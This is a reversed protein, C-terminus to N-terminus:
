GPPNTTTTVLTRQWIDIVLVARMGVSEYLGLAPTTNNTDVHLVTGDRGAAADRAFAVRLLHRAIGRGRAEPVVGITRVYGCHEDEVFQDNGLLVGVPRHDLYAVLLQGWDSTAAAGMRESWREYSTATEGFHETFARTVVAHADRRLAEDGPARRLLLGAPRGARAANVAAFIAEADAPTPARVGLGAPLDTTM